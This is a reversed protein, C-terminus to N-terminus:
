LFSPHISLQNFMQIFLCWIWREKCFCIFEWAIFYSFSIDMGQNFSTEGQNDFIVNSYLFIACLWVTNYSTNYWSKHYLIEKFLVTVNSYQPTIIEWVVICSNNFCRFISILCWINALSYKSTSFPYNFLHM